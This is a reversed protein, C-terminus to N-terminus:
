RNAGSTDLNLKHEIIDIHLIESEARINMSTSMHLCDYILEKAGLLDLKFKMCMDYDVSADVDYKGFEIKVNEFEVDVKLPKNKGM